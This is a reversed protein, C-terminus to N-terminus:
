KSEFSNLIKMWFLLKVPFYCLTIDQTNMKLALRVFDIQAALLQPLMFLHLDQTNPNRHDEKGNGVCLAKSVGYANSFFQRTNFVFCAASERLIFWAYGLSISVWGLVLNRGREKQGTTCTMDGYGDSGNQKNEGWRQLFWLLFRLDLTFPSSIIYKGPYKQASLFSIRIFGLSFDKWGAALWPWVVHALWPALQGVKELSDSAALPPVPTSPPLFLPSSRPFSFFADRSLPLSPSVSHILPRFAPPFHPEKRKEQGKVYKLILLFKFIKLNKMLCKPSPLVLDLQWHINKRPTKLDAARGLRSSM